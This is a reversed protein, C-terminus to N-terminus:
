FLNVNENTKPQMLQVVVVPLGHTKGKMKLSWTLSCFFRFTSIYQIYLVTCYLQRMKVCAELLNRLYQVICDGKLLLEVSLRKYPNDSRPFTTRPITTRPITTRPVTPTDTRYIKCILLFQCCISINFFDNIKTQIFYSVYSIKTKRLLIAAKFFKDSGDRQLVKTPPFM